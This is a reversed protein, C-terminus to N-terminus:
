ALLFADEEGPLAALFSELEEATATEAALAAEAGSFPSMAGLLGGALAAYAPVALSKPVDGIYGPSNLLSDLPGPNFNYGASGDAYSQKQGLSSPPGLVQHHSRLRTERASQGAQQGGLHHAEPM